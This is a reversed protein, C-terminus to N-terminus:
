EEPASTTKTKPETQKFATVGSSILPFVIDASLFVSNGVLVYRKNDATHSGLLYELDNIKIVAKPSELGLLNLDVDERTYLGHSPLRLLTLIPNVRRTDASHEIPKTLFWDEGRKELEIRKGDSQTIEISHADSTPLLVSAASIDAARKNLVAIAIILGLVLIGLTLLLFNRKRSVSITEVM